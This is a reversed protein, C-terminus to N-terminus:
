HVRQIVALIAELVRGTVVAYRIFLRGAYERCRQVKEHTGRSEIKRLVALLEPAAIDNIVRNGLLPIIDKELYRKINTAALNQGHKAPKQPGSM